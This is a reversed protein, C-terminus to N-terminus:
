GRITAIFAGFADAYEKCFPGWQPDAQMMVTWRALRPAEGLPDTMGFAPWIFQSCMILSPLVTCDAISLDKGCLYPGQANTYHELYKLANKTGTVSADVETQNRKAPNMNRFFGGTQAMLYLDAVRAVTRANARGRADKPLLSKGGGADELYELIVGSEAVAFGQDDLVPMKGMPNLALFEPSKIGGGIPAALPADVGKARLAMVIRAVYPSAFAGYIKM